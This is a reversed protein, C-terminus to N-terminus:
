VLTERVIWVIATCPAIVPLETDIYVHPRASTAPACHSFCTKDSKKDFNFLRVRNCSLFFYVEFVKLGLHHHILLQPQTMLSM